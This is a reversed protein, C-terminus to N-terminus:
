SKNIYGNLMRKFLKSREYLEKSRQQLQQSHEYLEGISMATNKMILYKNM